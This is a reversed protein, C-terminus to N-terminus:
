AEPTGCNVLWVDEARTMQANPKGAIERGAMRGACSDCNENGETDGAFVLLGNECSLALVKM